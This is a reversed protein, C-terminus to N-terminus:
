LYEVSEDFYRCSAVRSPTFREANTTDLSVEMVVDRGVPRWHCGTWEEEIHWWGPGDTRWEFRLRRRTGRQATYQLTVLAPQRESTQHNDDPNTCASQPHEDTM